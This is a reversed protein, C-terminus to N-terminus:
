KVVRPTSSNLVPNPIGVFRAIKQFRGMVYAVSADKSFKRYKMVWDALGDFLTQPDTSKIAQMAALEDPLLDPPAHLRRIESIPVGFDNVGGTGSAESSRGAAVDAFTDAPPLVQDMENALTAYLTRCRRDAEEYPVQQDRMLRHVREHYESRAANKRALIARRTSADASNAISPSRSADSPIEAYAQNICAGWDSIGSAQLQRARNLVLQARTM